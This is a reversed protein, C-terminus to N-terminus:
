DELGAQCESCNKIHDEETWPKDLEHEPCYTLHNIDDRRKDSNYKKEFTCKCDEYREDPIIMIRNNESLKENIMEILSGLASDTQSEVWWQIDGSDFGSSEKIEDLRTQPIRIFM